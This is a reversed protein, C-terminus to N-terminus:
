TFLEAGKVHIKLVQGLIEKSYIGQGLIETNILMGLPGGRRASPSIRRQTRLLGQILRTKLTGM